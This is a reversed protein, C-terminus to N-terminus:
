EPEETNRFIAKRAAELGRERGAEIGAAVWPHARNGPHHVVTAFRDGGIGLFHGKKATIIHPKTRGIALHRYPVMPGVVVAIPYRRLTKSKISRYLDGAKASSKKGFGPKVGSRVNAPAAQRVSKALARGQSQLGKKLKADLEAGQYQALRRAIEPAGEVKIEWDSMM